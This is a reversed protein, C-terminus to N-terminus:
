KLVEEPISECIDVVNKVSSPVGCGIVIVKKGMNQLHKYLPILDPNSSCFILVKSETCLAFITIDVNWNCTKIEQENVHFTKPRRYYVIIDASRLHTIFGQAENGTQCGFAEAKTVEGFKESLIEVLLKYNVKKNFTKKVKYYLDSVDFYINSM